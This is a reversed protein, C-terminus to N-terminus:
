GMANDTGRIHRAGGGQIRAILLTLRRVNSSPPQTRSKNMTMFIIKSPRVAKRGVKCGAMISGNSRNVPYDMGIGFIKM